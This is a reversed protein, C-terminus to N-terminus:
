LKKGDEIVRSQLTGFEKRQAEVKGLLTSHTCSLNRLDSDVTDMRDKFQAQATGHQDLRRNAKQLQVDFVKATKEMRDVADTAAALDKTTTELKGAFEGM